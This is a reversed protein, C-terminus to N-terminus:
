GLGLPVNRIAEPCEQDAPGECGGRQNGARGLCREHWRAFSAVLTARRARRERDRAEASPLARSSRRWTPLKRRCGYPGTRNGSLLRGCVVPLLFWRTSDTSLRSRACEPM